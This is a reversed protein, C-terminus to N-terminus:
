RYGALDGHTRGETVRLSLDFYRVINFFVLIFFKPKKETNDPAPLPRAASRHIDMSVTLIRYM